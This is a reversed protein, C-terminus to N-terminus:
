TWSIISRRDENLPSCSEQAHNESTSKIISRKTVIAWAWPTPRKKKRWEYGVSVTFLLRVIVDIMKVAAHKL